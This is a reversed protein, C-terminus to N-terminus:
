ITLSGPFLSLSPDARQKQLKRLEKNTRGRAKNKLKAQSKGEKEMRKM